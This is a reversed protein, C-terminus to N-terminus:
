KPFGGGMGGTQSMAYAQALSGLLGGIQGQGQMAMQDAYQQQQMRMGLLYRLAEQQAAQSAIARQYADGAYQQEMMAQQQAAAQEMQMRQLAVQQVAQAMMGQRANEAGLVAGAYDSGGGFGAQGLSAAARSKALEANYAGSAGAGGVAERGYSDIARRTTGRHADIASRWGERAGYDQRRLQAARAAEEGAYQNVGRAYPSDEFSPRKRRGFVNGIAKLGASAALGVLAPNPM